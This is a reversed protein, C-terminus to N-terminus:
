LKYLGKTVPISYLEKDWSHSITVEVMSHHLVETNHIITQYIIICHLMALVIVSSIVPPHVISHVNNQLLQGSVCMVAINILLQSFNISM